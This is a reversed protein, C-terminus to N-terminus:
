AKGDDNGNIAKCRASAQSPLLRDLDADGRLRPSFADENRASSTRGIWLFARPFLFFV